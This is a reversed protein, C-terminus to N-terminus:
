DASLMTGPKFQETGADAQPQSHGGKTDVSATGLDIVDADQEIKSM